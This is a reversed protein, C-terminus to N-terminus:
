EEHISVFPRWKKNEKKKYFMSIEESMDTVTKYQKNSLALQVSDFLVEVNFRPGDERALPTKSANRCIRAEATV